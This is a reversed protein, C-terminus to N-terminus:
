LERVMIKYTRSPDLKVVVNDLGNVTRTYDSPVTLFQWMTIVVGPRKRYASFILVEGRILRKPKGKRIYRIEAM